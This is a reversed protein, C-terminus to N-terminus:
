NIVTFIQLLKQMISCLILSSTFRPFIIFIYPNVAGNAENAEDLVTEIAADNKVDIMTFCKM